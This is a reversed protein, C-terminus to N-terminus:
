DNDPSSTSATAPASFHQHLIPLRDGRFLEESAEGAQIVIDSMAKMVLLSGVFPITAVALAVDCPTLTQRAM